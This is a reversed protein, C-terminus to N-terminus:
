IKRNILENRQQKPISIEIMDLKKFTYKLWYELMNSFSYKRFHRLNMNLIIRTVSISTYCKKFCKIVIQRLDDRM